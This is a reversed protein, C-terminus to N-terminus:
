LKPDLRNISVGACLNLTKWQWELAEKFNKSDAPLSSMPYGATFYNFEPWNKIAKKLSFYGKVEEAKDKFINGEILQTDGHFGQYIPNDPDLALADSFFKNALIIEQTILPSETQLRARETLKWLHIFGLHAALKPDDPNQLYAAMLLYDLKDINQYQGQHLTEWFYQEAHQALPTNSHQAKKAGTTLLAFKECSILIFSLMTLLVSFWKMKNLGQILM